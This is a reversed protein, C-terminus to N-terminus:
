SQPTNKARLEAMRYQGDTQPKDLLRAFAVHRDDQPVDVTEKAAKMKAAVAEPPDTARFHTGEVFADTTAALRNGDLRLHACDDPGVGVEVSADRPAFIRRLRALTRTVTSPNRPM